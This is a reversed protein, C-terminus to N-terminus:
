MDLTTVLRVIRGDRIEFINRGKGKGGPLASSNCTLDIVILGDKTEARDIALHMDPLPTKWGQEMVAMIASRGRHIQVTGSFPEEYVADDAFLREMTNRGSQGAQMALFFNTVEPPIASM